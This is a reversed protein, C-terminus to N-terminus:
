DSYSYLELNSLRPLPVVLLPTAKKVVVGFKESLDVEEVGNPLSWEFAHLLSALVHMLTREALLIGPCRRRGSGFPLYRLHNGWYDLEESPTGKLFREPKFELPAEWLQLDRQIAFVNLFIQAGKPITYGGVTTTKSPSHPVLLPVAPHLRFTEKVVAKLYELKLLHAEEVRSNLGVIETLEEQVKRMVKPHQLILAMAWEVTTVTTDMGGIVIDMLMAKVQVLTLSRGRDECKTLQLLYGLFDKQGSNEGDNHINIASNLVDECRLLIRKTRRGIGQLDVRALLPFFDSINPQGLLEMFEALVARFETNKTGGQNDKLTQGWVMSSVSNFIALLALEGIDVVEGAKGYIDAIMKKVQQNRLFYSSDLSSNTLMETALIKRMKRWEHGHNSFAIDSGGFSVITAAISPDRNAFTVDQDRVVEKVLSPSGIVICLKTGLQIKFIPGYTKGLETFSQHLNSGLFPLYGVLPLGRPGSPLPPMM